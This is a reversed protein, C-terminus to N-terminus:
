PKAKAKTLNKERALIAMECALIALTAALTAATEHDAL